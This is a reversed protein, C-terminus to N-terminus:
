FVFHFGTKLSLNLFNERRLDYFSQKFDIPRPNTENLITSSPLIIMNLVSKVGIEFLFSHSIPRRYTLEYSLAAGMLKPTKDTLFYNDIETWNEEDENEKSFQNISYKYGKNRLTSQTIGFGLGHVLGSPAIGKKNSFEFKLFLSSTIFSLQEMRIFSSDSKTNAQPNLNATLFYTPAPVKSEKLVAELGLGFGRAFQRTFGATCGFNLLERKAVMSNSKEIYHTSKFAGSFVPINALGTFNLSNRKSLYGLQSFTVTSVFLFLLIIFSKNKM